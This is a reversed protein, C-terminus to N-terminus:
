RDGGIFLLCSSKNNNLPSSSLSQVYWNICCATSSVNFIKKTVRDFHMIGYSEGIHLDITIDVDWEM